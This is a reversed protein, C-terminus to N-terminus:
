RVRSYLQSAALNTLACITEVICLPTCHNNALNIPCCGATFCHVRSYTTTWNMISGIVVGNPIKDQSSVDIQATVFKTADCFVPNMHGLYCCSFNPNMQMCEFAQFTINEKGCTLCALNQQRTQWTNKRPPEGTKAWRSISRRM